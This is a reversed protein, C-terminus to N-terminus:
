QIRRGKWYVPGFLSALGIGVVYPLQVVQEPLFYRLLSQRDFHRCAPILLYAESATKILFAAALVPWLGPAFLLMPLSISLLLYFAYVVGIALRLGLGPYRAGTAAWRRRQQLFSRIDPETEALVAAGPDPCFAVQWDTENAIRQILIEDNGAPPPDGPSAASAFQDYASRRYAVNASNCLNPRNAGIAGAGLAVLGLSELAQLDGFASRGTRYLVPGSVFATDRTMHRMMSSIWQPSTTCDADTTLLIDGRAAAIGRALAAHKHGSSAGSEDPIQVLHLRPFPPPAANRGAPIAAHHEAQLTRVRAATQDTSGDDVVVVEYRDSPYDGSLIAQLCATITDEENRAPVVVSVFPPTELPPPPNRRAVKRFGIGFLVMIGAYFSALCLLLVAFLSTM